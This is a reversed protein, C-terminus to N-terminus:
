CRRDSGSEEVSHPGVTGDVVDQGHDRIVFRPLDIKAVREGFLADRAIESRDGREIGDRAEVAGLLSM